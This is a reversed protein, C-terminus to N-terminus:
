LSRDELTTVLGDFDEESGLLDAIEIVTPLDIGHYWALGKLYGFRDFCEDEEYRAIPITRERNLREVTALPIGDLSLTARTM